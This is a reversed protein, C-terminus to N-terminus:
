GVFVGGSNKRVPFNSAAGRHHHLRHLPCFRPYIDVFITVTDRAVNFYFCFYINIITYFLCHLSMHCSVIYIPLFWNTHGDGLSHPSRPTHNGPQWGSEVITRHGWSQRETLTHEDKSRANGQVHVNHGINEMWKETTSRALGQLQQLFSLILQDQAYRHWMILLSDTKKEKKYM